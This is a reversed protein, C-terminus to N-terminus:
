EDKSDKGGASDSASLENLIKNTPMCKVTNVGFNSPTKTTKGFAEPLIKSVSDVGWGLDVFARMIDWLVALMEAAEEESIDLKALDDRYDAPDFVPFPCAPKDNTNSDQPTDHKRDM